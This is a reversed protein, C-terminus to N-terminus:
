AVLTWQRRGQLLADSIRQRWIRQNSSWYIMHCICVWPYNTDLICLGQASLCGIPIFSCPFEGLTTQDPTVFAVAHTSEHILTKVLYDKFWAINNSGGALTAADTQQQTTPEGGVAVHMNRYHLGSEIMSADYAEWAGQKAPCFVMTEEILGYIAGYVYAAVGSLVPVAPNQFRTTAGDGLDCVGLRPVWVKGGGETM